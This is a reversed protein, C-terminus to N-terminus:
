KDDGSQSTMDGTPTIILDHIRGGVLRTGPRGFQSQLESVTEVPRYVIESLLDITLERLNRRVSLTGLATLLGSAVADFMIPDGNNFVLFRGSHLYQHVFFRQDAVQDIPVGLDSAALKASERTADVGGPRLSSYNTDTFNSILFLEPIWRNGAHEYASFHIGIGADTISSFAMQNLRCQISQAVAIAFEQPGPFIAASQAQERLWDYTSWGYRDYVALGWYSMAGRWHRVPVIKSREWEKPIRNGDQDLQTILSDSAHVTGVSSILCSIVTM